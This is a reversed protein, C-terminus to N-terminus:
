SRPGGRQPAKPQSDAEIDAANADPGPGAPCLSGAMEVLDQLRVQQDLRLIPALQGMQEDDLTGVLDLFAEAFPEPAPASAPASPAEGVSSASAEAAKAGADERAGPGGGAPAPKSTAPPHAKPTSAPTVAPKERAEARAKAALILSPLDKTAFNLVTEISETKTKAELVRIQREHEESLARESAALYKLRADDASAAQAEQREIQAQLTQIVGGLSYTVLNLLERNNDLLRGVVGALAHEANDPKKEEEGVRVVLRASPAHVGGEECIAVVEYLGPQEMADAHNRLAIEIRQALKGVTQEDVLRPVRITDLPPNSRATQQSAARVIFRAPVAEVDEADSEPDSEDSDPAFLPTLWETLRANLPSLEILHPM